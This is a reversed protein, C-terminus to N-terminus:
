SSRDQKVVTHYPDASDQLLSPQLQPGARNRIIFHFPNHLSTTSAGVRSVSLSTNSPARLFRTQNFIDRCPPHALHGGFTGELGLCEIIRRYFPLLHLLVYVWGWCLPWSGEGPESCGGRQELAPPCHGQRGQPLARIQLAAPQWCSENVATVTNYRGM